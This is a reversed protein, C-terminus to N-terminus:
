DNRHEKTPTMLGFGLNRNGGILLPGTVPTDFEIRAHVLRRVRGAQIVRPFSGAPRVGALLSQRTTEINVPRPLGARSCSHTLWEILWTEYEDAALIRRPSEAIVLPLASYWIRAPRAWRAWQLTLQTPDTLRKIKPLGQLASPAVGDLAAAVARLLPRREAPALDRPVIVAGGLLDGTAQPHGVNPLGLVFVDRGRTSGTAACAQLVAGRITATLNALAPAGLRPRIEFSFWIGATDSSRPPRDPRPRSTAYPTSVAPLARPRAGRHRHFLEVLADLQGPGTTRLLEEADPDPWHTIQQVPDDLLRCSVLSSSHGFRTVRALLGDLTQRQRGTLEADPWTYTIICRGDSEPALTMSPFTRPQRDRGAPMSDPLAELKAMAEEVSKGHVLSAVDRAKNLQSMASRRERNTLNGAALRRRAETAKEVRQWLAKGIVSADNVPVYHIVPTRARAQGVGIRPSGHCELRRLLLEEDPNAEPTSAWEAVLASFFRAPHPPWEPANRDDHRAAVYRGTLFDVEVTLM